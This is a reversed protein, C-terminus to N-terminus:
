RLLFKNLIFEFIFDLLGLFLAVFLSLGIVILTYTVMQKRSPWAVKSLEVRVEKLFTTIKEM